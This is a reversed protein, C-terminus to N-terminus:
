IRQRKLIASAQEDCCTFTGQIMLHAVCQRDRCLTRKDLAEGITASNGHWRIAADVM